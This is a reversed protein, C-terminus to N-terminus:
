QGIEPSTVFKSLAQSNLPRQWKIAMAHGLQQFFTIAFFLNHIGNHTSESPTASPLSILTPKLLAQLSLPMNPANEPKLVIVNPQAVWLTKEQTLFHDAMDAYFRTADEGPPVWYMATMANQTMRGYLVKHGHKFAEMDDVHIQVGLIEMLKLQIEPLALTPLGQTLLVWETSDGLAESLQSVAQSSTELWAQLTEPLHELDGRLPANNSSEAAWRLLSYLSGTVTKTAPISEEPGVAIDFVHHTYARLKGSPTNTVLTSRKILDPNKAQERTATDVLCGTNGSQSLFLLGTNASELSNPNCQASVAWSSATHISMSLSLGAEIFPKAMSLVNWSSGEALGYLVNTTEPLWHTFVEAPVNRLTALCQPQSQIEAWFTEHGLTMSDSRHQPLGM